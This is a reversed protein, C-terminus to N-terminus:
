IDKAKIKITTSLAITSLPPRRPKKFFVPYGATRIDPLILVPIWHM